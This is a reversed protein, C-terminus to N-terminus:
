TLKKKTERFDWIFSPQRAFLTLTNPNPHGQRGQAGNQCDARNCHALLAMAVFKHFPQQRCHVPLLPNHLAAERLVAEGLRLEEGSRRTWHKPYVPVHYTPSCHTQIVFNSM